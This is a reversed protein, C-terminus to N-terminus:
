LKIEPGFYKTPYWKKWENFITTKWFDLFNWYLKQPKLYPNNSPHIDCEAETNLNIRDDM